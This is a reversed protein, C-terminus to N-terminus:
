GEIVLQITGNSTDLRSREGGDGVVIRGKNRSISQSSIRGTYDDISISGNSTDMTVTGMFGRGVKVKISGNSTDLNLPGAQDPALAVEIRGNSTDATVSGNVNDLHISGNSTDVALSGLHDTVHIAANSTDIRASGEHSVVEVPGNSTDIVLTGSLGHAIVRGNSTDINVGDADPVRVVVSAGENSRPPEPLVPKIILTRDADRYVALETLALRQEAEEQTKAATRISAEIAVDTRDPEAVVEVRGNRTKVQLASGPVHTESLVVDKQARHPYSDWGRFSCATLPLVVLLVAALRIPTRM